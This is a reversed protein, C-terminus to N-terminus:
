AALVSYMEDVLDRMYLRFWYTYDDPQAVIRARLDDRTVWAFAAVESKEPTVAGNYRGAFLHVIEDEILGNGVPARYPVRAVFTLPGDVGMEERLRRQAAQPTSEGVRPHTCCANTWLGGSHYKNLARQQLLLRGQADFLCVSIARHRLGKAHAEIKPALGIERDGADVLIITEDDDNM